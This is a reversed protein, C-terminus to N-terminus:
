GTPAATRTWSAGKDSSVLLGRTTGAFIVNANRSDEKWYLVREGSSLGMNMNQFTMGGDMSRKAQTGAEAHYVTKGDAGFGPSVAYPLHSDFEAEYHSVALWSKGRDASRFLTGMDTGVFWLSNYPSIAVGSMAGGGGVGLPTYVQENDTPPDVPDPDPTPDPATPQTPQTPPNTDVPDKSYDDCGTLALLLAFAAAVEKFKM